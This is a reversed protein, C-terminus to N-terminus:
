GLLSRQAGLVDLCRGKQPVGRRCAGGGRDVGLFYESGLYLKALGEPREVRGGIRM